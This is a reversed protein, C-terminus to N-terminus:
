SVLKPTQGKQLQDVLSKGAEGQWDDLLQKSSKLIGAFTPSAHALADFSDVVRGAATQTAALEAKTDEHADAESNADRRKKLAYAGASLVGGGLLVDIASAGQQGGPVLAAFPKAISWLAANADAQRKISDLAAQTQDALTDLDAKRQASAAAYDAQAKAGAQQAALTIDAAKGQQDASLKTLEAQAIAQAEQARRAAEAADRVDDVAAQREKAAYDAQLQEAGVLRHTIPSEAKPQFWDVCGALSVLAAASVCVTVTRATKM